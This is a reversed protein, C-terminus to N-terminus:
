NNLCQSIRTIAAMYDHSSNVDDRGHYSGSFLTKPHLKHTKIQKKLPIPGGREDLASLFRHVIDRAAEMEPTDRRPVTRDAMRPEIHLAPSTLSGDPLVTRGNGNMKIFFLSGIKHDIFLALDQLLHSVDHDPLEASHDAFFPWAADSRACADFDHSLAPASAFASVIRPTDAKLRALYATRMQDIPERGSPAKRPLLERQAAFDFHPLQNENNIRVLLIPSHGPYLTARGDDTDISPSLDFSWPAINIWESGPESWWALASKDLFVTLGYEWRPDGDGPTPGASLITGACSSTDLSQRLTDIFPGQGDFNTTQSIKNLFQYAMSHAKTQAVLGTLPIDTAIDHHTHLKM